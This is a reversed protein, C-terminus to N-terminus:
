AGPDLLSALMRRAARSLSSGRWGFLVGLVASNLAGAILLTIWTAAVPDVAGIAILSLDFLFCMLTLGLCLVVAPWGLAATPKDPLQM